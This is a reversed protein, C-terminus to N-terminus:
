WKVAAFREGCKGDKAAVTPAGGVSVEPGKPSFNVAGPGLAIKAFEAKVLEPTTGSVTVGDLRVELLHSSDYGMLTVLPAVTANAAREVWVNKLTIDKYDPIQTGTAASYHPTLLIPNPLGRICVDTYSVNTVLGGRSPDSKIRIGNLDEPPMGGSDLDGDITLDYVRVDSVGGNTESGISMGHGVGFHNHAIVLGQTPGQNGGKIAIQDDGVSIDCYAVVGNTASSPDIADTNRAYFPTLEHGASNKPQSPTKIKVGWAVYGDSNIVVHFKPSNQIRVRYLTFNKAKKVDIIRPNSHKVKKVKADQAVDWWTQKGGIMPEGGRGDITGDGVVGTDAAGDVLILPRCGNSDNNEDTGCTPKGAKVDFDRPNRSAFLTVGADVWLTVGLALKLPGSVFANKKADSVLKVAHGASCADIAAQLRATDSTKEDAAALFGGKELKAATLTTCPPPIKPEPPLAPPENSVIPPEHVAPAANAARTPASPEAASVSPAPPTPSSSPEAEGAKQCAFGAGALVFLLALNRRPRSWMANKM